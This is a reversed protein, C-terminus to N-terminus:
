GWRVGNNLKPRVSIQERIRVRGKLRYKCNMGATEEIDAEDKNNMLLNGAALLFTNYHLSLFTDQIVCFVSMLALILILYGYKDYGVSRIAMATCIVLMLVFFVVGNSVYWAVYNNDIYFYEEEDPDFSLEGEANLGNGNMEVDQGFLSFGYENMAKKQHKLRGSLVSNIKKQFGVEPDYKLSVVLSGIALVIFCLSLIYKIKKKRVMFYPWLKLFSGIALIMLSLIFSLRSGTMVFVWVNILLLLLVEFWLIAKKRVYIVLMSINMIVTSPYLAYRFGLYHRIRGHGDDLIYDQVVGIQSSLIVLGLFILLVVASFCAIHRFPIKRAAFVFLVTAAFVLYQPLQVFIALAIYFLGIILGIIMSKTGKGFFFEEAIILLLCFGLGAKFAIGDVYRFFMTTRLLTMTVFIGYSIYFLLDSSRIRLRM